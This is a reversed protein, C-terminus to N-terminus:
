PTSLFVSLINDAIRSFYQEFHALLWLLLYESNLVYNGTVTRIATFYHFQIGMTVQRCTTVNAGYNDHIAVFDDKV